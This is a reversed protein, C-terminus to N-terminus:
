FKISKTAKDWGHHFYDEIIAPMPTVLQEAVAFLNAISQETTKAILLYGKAVGSQPITLATAKAMTVIRLLGKGSQEQEAKNQQSFSGLLSDGYYHYDIPGEETIIMDYRELQSQCWSILNERPSFIDPFARKDIIVNELQEQRTFNLTSLVSIQQQPEPIDKVVDFVVQKLLSFNRTICGSTPTFPLNDTSKKVVQEVPFLSSICSFLNLSMAPALVSGGGDTGLGIDNIGLFVNVASGSSSGTMYRGTLPNILGIDVARGSKAMRDITHFLYNKEQLCEIFPRLIRTDKVGVYYYREIDTTDDCVAHFADTNVDAVSQYENKLAAITMKGYRPINRHEM